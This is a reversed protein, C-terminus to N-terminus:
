DASARGPAAAVRRGTAPIRCSRISRPASWASRHPDCFRPFADQKPQCATVPPAASSRPGPRYDVRVSCSRPPRRGPPCSRGPNSSAALPSWPRKEAAAPVVRSVDAVEVLVAEQIEDVSQVVHDHTSALVDVRDLHLHSGFGGRPRRPRRSRPVSGMQPSCTCAMTTGCGPISTVASPSICCARFDTAPKLTGFDTSNRESGSGNDPAIFGSLRSKRRLLVGQSRQCIPDPGQRLSPPLGLRQRVM